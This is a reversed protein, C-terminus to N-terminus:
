EGSVEEATVGASVFSAIASELPEVLWLDQGSHRKDYGMRRLARDFATTSYSDGRVGRDRGWAIFANRLQTGTYGSRDASPRLCQEAFERIPDAETRYQEIADFSSPPISFRTERHLGKLGEIAWVLIGPLEAIM